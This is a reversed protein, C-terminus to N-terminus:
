ALREEQIQTEADTAREAEERLASEVKKMNLEILVKLLHDATVATPNPDNENRFKCIQLHRPFTKRESIHVGIYAVFHRPCGIHVMNKNM